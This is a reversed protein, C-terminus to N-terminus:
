LYQLLHRAMVDRVTDVEEDSFPAVSDFIHQFGTLRGTSVISQMFHIVYYGCETDGPQRPCKPYYWKAGGQEKAGSLQRYTKLGSDNFHFNVSM